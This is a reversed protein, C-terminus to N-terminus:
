IGDASDHGENQVRKVVDAHLEDLGVGLLLGHFLDGELVDLGDALKLLAEGLTEPFLGEHLERM